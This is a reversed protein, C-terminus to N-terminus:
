TPPVDAVAGDDGARSSMAANSEYPQDDAAALAENGANLASEYDSFGNESHSHPEFTLAADGPQLLQWRFSGEDATIVQLAHSKM